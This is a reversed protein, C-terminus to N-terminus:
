KEKTEYKGQGDEPPKYFLYMTQGRPGGYGFWSRGLYGKLVFSQSHLLAYGAGAFDDAKLGIWKPGVRDDWYALTGPPSERLLNLDNEHNGTFFPNEWPDADFLIGAYPECWIMRKITFQQERAEFWAYIRAVARADRPLELCDAYVFNAFASAVFIILMAATRLTGSAGSFRQAMLNWGTLSLLAIAPSVSLLYRPYGASGFLGYARLITHLVFLLLFSSTITFLRRHKLLHILGYLFLPLMFLGVIEPLRLPYAYISATGYSSGTVSWNPPWNDRIYLPNGTIILAALWWSFAGTALLPITLVARSRLLRISWNKKGGPQAEVLVWTGWLIGLFFGEPRALIALSAVIMGAKVRGLHHLRLAIVYVLAFVLETMTDVCYIFFMPQLWLFAIVLPARAIGLEEALRWTQYAIVLCIMLSFLRAANQGALSPIAYILTFLPRSWVGVLME